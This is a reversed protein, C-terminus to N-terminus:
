ISTIFLVNLSVCVSHFGTGHSEHLIASLWNNGLNEKYYMVYFYITEKADGGFLVMNLYQEIKNIERIERYFLKCTGSEKFLNKHEL